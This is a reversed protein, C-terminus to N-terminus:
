SIQNDSCVFFLMFEIISDFAFVCRHKVNIVKYPSSQWTMLDSYIASILNSRGVAALITAHRRCLTIFEQAM